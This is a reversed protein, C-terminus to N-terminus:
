MYLYKKIIDEISVFIQYLNLPAIIFIFFTYEIVNLRRNRTANIGIPISLVEESIFELFLKLIDMDKPKM